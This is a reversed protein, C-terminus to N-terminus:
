TFMTCSVRLREDGLYGLGASVLVVEMALGGFGGAGAAAAAALGDGGGGDYEAGYEGDYYMGDGGEMGYMEDEDAGAMGYLGGGPADADVVLGQLAKIGGGGRQGQQRQRGGAVM